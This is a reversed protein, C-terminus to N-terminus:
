PFSIFEALFVRFPPDTEDVFSCLSNPGNFLDDETRQRRGIVRTGSVGEPFPKDRKTRGPFPKPSSVPRCSYAVGPVPTLSWQDRTRSDSVSPDSPDQGSRLRHFRPTYPRTVPGTSHSSKSRKWSGLVSTHRTGTDPPDSGRSRSPWPSRVRSRLRKRPGVRRSRGSRTGHTGGSVGARYTPFVRSLSPGPSRHGLNQELGYETRVM